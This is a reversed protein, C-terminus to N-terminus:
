TWVPIGKGLQSEIAVTGGSQHAFGHVQSLGLGSGKTLSKTTFFPDFVKALVDPAIGSGTDTIRLVVFEGEIKEPVDGRRLLVNEATLM